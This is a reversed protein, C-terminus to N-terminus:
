GIRMKIKSPALLSVLERRTVNEPWLIKRKATRGGILIKTTACQGVLAQKASPRTTSYTARKPEWM